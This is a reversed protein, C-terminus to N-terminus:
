FDVKDGKATIIMKNFYKKMLTFDPECNKVAAENELLILVDRYQHTELITIEGLIASLNSDIEELPKPEWSPFDMVLMGDKKTVTLPGSASQFVISEKNYGLKEFLIFASALTAHGCLNIEVEPTFWRIDFGTENAVFFVTESLNNELAIKQMLEKSLWAKLPIVAAPNGGFLHDTFADVQYIKFQM